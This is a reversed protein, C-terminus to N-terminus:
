DPSHPLNYSPPKVNTTSEVHNLYAGALSVWIVTYFAARLFGGLVAFGISLLSGNRERISNIEEIVERTQWAMILVVGAIAIVKVAYIVELAEKATM